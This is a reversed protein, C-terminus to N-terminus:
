PNHWFVIWGGGLEINQYLVQVSTVTFTTGCALDPGGITIGQGITLATTQDYYLGGVDCTANNSLGETIAWYQSSPRNLSFGYVAMLNVNSTTNGVVVTHLSTMVGDAWQVFFYNGYDAVLVQYSHGDPVTFTCASFCSQLLQGNQWLTTYIGSIKNAPTGVYTTVNITSFGAPTPGCINRYVATLTTNSTIALTRFRNTSGTDLWHDFVYCRSDDVGVTHNTGTDLPFSAPSYATSTLQGNVSNCLILLGQLPAGTTNQTNITLYVLPTSPPNTTSCVRAITTTTTYTTSTTTFTTSTTSTSSSTSTTPTTSTTSTTTTSTSTSTIPATICATSITNSQMTVDGTNAMAAGQLSTGTALTVSSYALITGVFTTATGLTAGGAATVWFVNCSDAGNSLVVSGGTTSLAGAIAAPAQFIWISAPNGQGNLTLVGGSLTFTTSAARYVGPVLTQGDLATLITAPAYGNAQTIASSLDTQTTSPAGAPYNSGIITVSGFGTESPTPYSGVDGTITTTGTNTIGSSALVAFPAATGLLVPTGTGSSFLLGFGAFPLVLVVAVAVLLVTRKLM